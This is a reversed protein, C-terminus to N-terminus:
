QWARSRERIYQKVAEADAPLLDFKETRQFLDACKAPLEPRVGTAREVTEPFKAPHATALISGPAAVRRGPRRSAALGVATHPCVLDGSMIWTM